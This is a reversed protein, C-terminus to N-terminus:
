VDSCSSSRINLANSPANYAVDSGATCSPDGSARRARATGDVEHILAM